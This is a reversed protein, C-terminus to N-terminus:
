PLREMSTYTQTPSFSFTHTHTNGKWISKWKVKKVDNWFHWRCVIDSSQPHCVIVKAETVMEFSLTRNQAWIYIYIYIYIYLFSPLYIPLNSDSYSGSQGSTSLIFVSNMCGYSSVLISLYTWILISLHISLYISLYINTSHSLYISLYISLCISLYIM